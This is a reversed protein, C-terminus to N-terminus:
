KIICSNKFFIVLFVVVENVRLSSIRKGGNQKNQCCRCSDSRQSQKSLANQQFIMKKKDTQKNVYREIVVCSISMM